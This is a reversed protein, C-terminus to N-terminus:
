KHVVGTTHEVEVDQRHGVRVAVHVAPGRVAHPPLVPAGDALGRGRGRYGSIGSAEASAPAEAPAPAPGPAPALLLRLAAGRAYVGVSVEGGLEALVLGLLAAVAEFTSLAKKQCQSDVFSMTLCQEGTVPSAGKESASLWAMLRPTSIIRRCLPSTAAKTDM